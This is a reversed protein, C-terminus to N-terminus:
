GYRQAAPCHASHRLAIGVMLASGAPAFGAPLRTAACCLVAQFKEFAPNMVHCRKRLAMEAGARQEQQLVGGTHVRHRGHTSTFAFAKSKRFAVGCSAGMDRERWWM